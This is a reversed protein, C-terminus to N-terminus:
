GGGLKGSSLVHDLQQPSLKWGSQFAGSSNEIVNLGTQPNVHHIVNQGRYTGQIANVGSSNIHQNISSNFQTANAKNFNGNVGFDPAHKFKKQLQRQTTSLIRSSSGTKPSKIKQSVKKIVVAAEVDFTLGGIMKGTTYFDRKDYAKKFKSAFNVTPTYLVDYPSIDGNWAGKFFSGIGMLTDYITIDRLGIIRDMIGDKWGMASVEMDDFVSDACLGFPDIFALPNRNAIAYVNAGGDIGLPDPQIFRKTKSAYARHLTLHLDTDTDYYVGYGGLWQFPTSTTGTHTAYGYPTYAFQDTVTGNADTLALTSGLENAHYYRTTGNAEIHCLLHAGSWVYYRTVNGSADTEALPRKLADTHDIVFLNTTTQTGNDTIRGVRAGSADCMTGSATALTVLPLLLSGVLTRMWASILERIM